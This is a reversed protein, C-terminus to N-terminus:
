KKCYRDYQIQMKFKQIKAEYEFDIIWFFKSYWIQHLDLLKKSRRNRDM